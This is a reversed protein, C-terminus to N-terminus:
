IEDVSPAPKQPNRGQALWILRAVLQLFFLSAGVAIFMQVVGLPTETATWATTGRELSQLAQRLLAVALFATVVVGVGACWSELWRATRPGVVDRFISVRVHGGTQLTYAAGYFFVGGCLYSSYEWTFQLSFGFVGRTAIEALMIAFMGGLMAAALLGGAVSLGDILSAIRGLAAPIGSASHGDLGM